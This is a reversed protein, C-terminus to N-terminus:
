EQTLLTRRVVYFGKRVAQLSARTPRLVASNPGEGRIVVFALGM